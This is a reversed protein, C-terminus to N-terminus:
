GKIITYDKSTKTLPLCSGKTVLVTDEIRIGFRGTIYVGPEVTVVMNAKLLSDVNTNFFPQEHIDLGVGHGPSHMVIQGNLKLDDNINRTLVKINAGEKMDRLTIENNKLVLEYIKKYEEKVTGVFMIRTMDSCYGNYKCGYDLLIIDGYEIKRHTPVAHPMSSNPGSAVIPDFSNGEAGEMKMYREMEFAIEKETMGIKIFSKLHEFCADGIECARGINDVEEDDKVQRQQEIIGETEVLNVKYTHMMNQYDYYTVYKEEFGVNECFMFFTEYDEAALHRRDNVLIEDDITIISNVAEIYRSDTIFLNEKLTILLVGEAEIGTLYKINVPNSVVMGQLNQAKMRDRLFKIKSNM